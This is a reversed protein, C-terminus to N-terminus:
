VLVPRWAVQLEFVGRNELSQSNMRTKLCGAQNSSWFSEFLTVFTVQTSKLGSVKNVFRFPRTLTSGDKM